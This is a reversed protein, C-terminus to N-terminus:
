QFACLVCERLTLRTLRLVCFYSSTPRHHEQCSGSRASLALRELTSTHYAGSRYSTYHQLAQHVHFCISPCLRVQWTSADGKLGAVTALYGSMRNHVLTAAIGGLCYALDCDFNSPLASRAQTHCICCCLCQTYSAYMTLTLLTITHYVLLIGHPWCVRYLPSDDARCCCLVHM